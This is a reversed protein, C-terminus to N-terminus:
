RPTALEESLQRLFLRRQNTKKKLMKTNEYYIIYSALAAVDLINLCLALPWRSTRRHTTYRGVMQDMTDVGAKYTNYFLIM